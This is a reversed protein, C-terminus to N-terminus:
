TECNPGVKYTATISVRMVNDEPSGDEINEWGLGFPVAPVASFTTGNELKSCVDEIKDYAKDMVSAVDRDLRLLLEGGITVTYPQWPYSQSQRSKIWFWARGQEEATLARVEGEVSDAEPWVKKGQYAQIGTVANASATVLDLLIAPLRTGAM